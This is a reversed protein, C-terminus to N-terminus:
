HQIRVPQSCRNGSRKYVEDLSRNFGSILVDEDNMRDILKNIARDLPHQEIGLLCAKRKEFDVVSLNVDMMGNMM